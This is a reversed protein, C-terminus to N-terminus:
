HKSILKGNHIYKFCINLFTVYNGDDTLKNLIKM